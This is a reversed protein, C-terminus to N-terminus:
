PFVESGRSAQRQAYYTQMGQWYDKTGPAAAHEEIFRKRRALLDAFNERDLMKINPEHDLLREMALSLGILDNNKIIQRIKRVVAAKNALKQYTRRVYAEYNAVLSPLYDRHPPGMRWLTALHTNYTNEEMWQLLSQDTLLEYARQPQQEKLIGLYPVPERQAMALTALEDLIPADLTKLQQEPLRDALAKRYDLALGSQGISTKIMAVETYPACRDLLTLVHTYDGPQPPPGGVLDSLHSLDRGANVEQLLRRQWYQPIRGMLQVVIRERHRSSQGSFAGKLFLETITELQKERLEQITWDVHESLEKLLVETTRATVKPDTADKLRNFLNQAKHDAKGGKRLLAVALEPHGDYFLWLSTRVM